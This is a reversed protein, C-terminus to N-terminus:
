YFDNNSKGFQGGSAGITPVGFRDAVLSVKVGTGECLGLYDALDISPTGPAVYALPLEDCALSPGYGTGYGASSLWVYKAYKKAEIPDIPKPIRNHLQAGLIRGSTDRIPVIYGPQANTMNRGDNSIGPIASNIPALLPQRVAISRIGMSRAKEASIGRRALDAADEPHLRDPLIKILKSYQEHRLNGDPNGARRDAEAQLQEKQRAIRDAKEQPTEPAKPIGTRKQGNPIWQTTESYEQDSRSTGHLEYDPHTRHDKSICLILDIRGDDDNRYSCGWGKNHCIPCTGKSFKNLTAQSFNRIPM